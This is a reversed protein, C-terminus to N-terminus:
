RIITLLAEKTLSIFDTITYDVGAELLEEATHTTTIGIVKCGADRGAIVGSISDEIVICQSTPTDLAAACNIYIEPNPKGKKVHAQHLITKFYDKLGTKELTFQVNEYPASTGICFPIHEAVLLDLFTKMGAVPVIHNQYLERWIVEKESGLALLQADNLKGDYLDNIWDKNARGYLRLKREDETLSFGKASLFKDLALKHYPNSDIIVGDMDFLIAFQKM